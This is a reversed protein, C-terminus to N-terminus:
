ESTSRRVSGRVAVGLNERIFLHEHPLLEPELAAASKTGWLAEGTKDAALSQRQSPSEVILEADKDLLIKAMAATGYAAVRHISLDLAAAVGHQRAVKVVVAGDRHVHAREIDQAAERVVAGRERRVVHGADRASRNRGQRHGPDLGDNGLDGPLYPARM